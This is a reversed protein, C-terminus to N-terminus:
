TINYCKIHFCNEFLQIYNRLCLIKVNRITDPCIVAAHHYICLQGCNCICNEFLKEMKYKM